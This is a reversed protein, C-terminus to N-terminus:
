KPPFPHHFDYVALLTFFLMGIVGIFVPLPKRELAAVYVMLMFMATAIVDFLVASM